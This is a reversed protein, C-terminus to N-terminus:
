NSDLANDSGMFRRYATAFTDGECKAVFADRTGQYIVRGAELILLNPCLSEVTALDHTVLVIGKGSEAVRQMAGIALITADIDMNSVPEDLLFVDPSRSIAIAFRVRQGEGLSLESPRKGLLTHLKMMDIASEIARGENIDACCAALNEQVTFEPILGFAAPLYGLRPAKSGGQWDVGNAQTGVVGALLRLFTTKGAGNRGLVALPGDLRIELHDLSLIPRSARDFSVDGGNVKFSWV